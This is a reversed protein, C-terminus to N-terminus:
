ETESISIDISLAIRYTKGKQVTVPRVIAYDSVQFRVEHVGPDVPHPAQPTEVLVNNLYVMAGAPHEFILLPTSDELEVTLETLKAREVVFRIRQERYYESVITMQHEGSRLLHEVRFNALADGNILVTLPRDQVNDPYQFNFRVLGENSLIPRVKLDFVMTQLESSLERTEAALQFLLPFTATDVVGTLVTAYPSTRLGHNERLPIQYISRVRSPLPDRGLLERVTEPAQGNAADAFERYVAAALGGRYNLFNQPASLELEIGLLFRTDGELTIRSSSAFSIPLSSGETDFASVRHV